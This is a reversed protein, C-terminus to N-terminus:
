LDIMYKYELMFTLLLLYVSFSNIRKGKDSDIRRNWNKLVLAVKHFRQDMACYQYILASNLMELPKNISMDVDIVFKKGDALRTVCKIELLVGASM